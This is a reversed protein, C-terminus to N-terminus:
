SHRRRVVRLTLRQPAASRGDATVASVTLQYRGPKLRKHGPVRGHFAIRDSGHQEASQFSGRRRLRGHRAIKKVEVTVTAADNLFFKLATRGGRRIRRQSLRLDLLQLSAPLVTVDSSAADDGTNDEHTSTSAAATTALTGVEEPRVTLLMTVDDGAAITGMSCNVTYAGGCTGRTTHVAMPTASFPLAQSLAVDTAPSPGANAVTVTYTLSHGVIVPAPAPSMSVRLDAVCETARSPDTPCQDQTEDGYGDGDADPEVDANLLLEKGSSKMPISSGSSLAPTFTYVDSPATAFVQADSSQDLGITDGAAIKVRAPFVGTGAPLAQSDSTGASEYRGSGVPRILNLKAAPVSTASRVRWRVVVGDSPAKALPGGTAPDGTFATCSVAGPGCAKSDPARSLDSGITTVAGAPAALALAGLVGLLARSRRM